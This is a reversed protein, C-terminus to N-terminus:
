QENGLGELIENIADEGYGMERLEEAGERAQDEAQRAKWYEKKVYDEGASHLWSSFLIQIQENSLAKFREDTPLVRYHEIVWLRERVRPSANGWLGDRGLKELRNQM